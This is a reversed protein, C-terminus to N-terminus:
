VSGGCKAPPETGYACPRRTEGLALWKGDPSFAVAHVAGPSNPVPCTRLETAVDWVVVNGDVDGSALTSGDSSLAVSGVRREHQLLLREPRDAPRWFRVSRDVSGSAITQGDPLFAVARVPDDHGRFTFVEFDSELDWLRVARDSGGSVLAGGDPSFAVSLVDAPHEFRRLINGTQADWLIVKQDRSASALRKGDPSFCVANLQDPQTPFPTKAAGTAVDWLKLEGPGTPPGGTTALVNQVPSFAVSWVVDTHGDLTRPPQDKDVDWLRVKADFGGSALLKGDCSFAVAVVGKPHDLGRVLRGTAPDWLYVKGDDGASALRDGLPSFAVCRVQNTHAMRPLARVTGSAADWLRVIRDASGTAMLKGDGSFALSTVAGTHGGLTQRACNCLRWYYWWEFGRLDAKGEPPLQRELLQRVLGHDGEDWAKQVLNLDSVYFHRRATLENAEAVRKLSREQEAAGEAVRKLEREQEAVQDAALRLHEQQSAYVLSGATLALLGLVSVAILAAAAPRRRAWKLAREGPGAPRARIPEGRLFRRLDDALERARAYRHGPEKELAKLCITNLDRPVAPDIRRPPCPEEYQVRLALVERSGGRFPLEGTLLEYFIVGLSYIDSRGDV